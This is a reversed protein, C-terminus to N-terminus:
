KSKRKRLILGVAIALMLAVGSIIMVWLVLHYNSHDGTDPDGPDPKAPRSLSLLRSPSPPRSM